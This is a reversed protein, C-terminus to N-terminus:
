YSGADGSCGGVPRLDPVEGLEALSRDLGGEFDDYQGAFDPYTSRL